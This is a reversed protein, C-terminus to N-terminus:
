MEPYCRGLGLRRLGRLDGAGFDRVDFESESFMLQSRDTVHDLGVVHGLEHQVIARAADREPLNVASLQERDLVVQGSVFVFDGDPTQAATSGGIGAVAGDLSPYSSADRWAILVPAWRDRSYRAPQYIERENEPAENTRGDEVFQLGTARSVKAVAQRVLRLGDRPAGDLNVVYHIPRCPDYAVPASARSPQTQVFVYGGRGAPARPPSGLPETAEEQSAPPRSTLPKTRPESRSAPTATSPSPVSAPRQFWWVVAVLSVMVLIPTLSRFSRFSRFSRRRAVIRHSSVEVAPLDSHRARPRETTGWREGDFYREGTGTASWPDPYWGPASPREPIVGPDDAM